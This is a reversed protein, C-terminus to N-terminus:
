FRCVYKELKKKLNYKDFIIKNMRLYDFPYTLVTLSTTVLFSSVLINNFNNLYPKLHNYSSQYMPVVMAAISPKAVNAVFGNYLKKSCTYQNKTEISRNLAITVIPHELIAIVNCSILSNLSNLFFSNKDYYNQLFTYMNYKMTISIGQKLYLYLAGM